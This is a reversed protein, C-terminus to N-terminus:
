LYQLVLLGTENPRIRGGQIATGEIEFLDLPLDRMLPWVVGSVKAWGEADKPSRNYLRVLDLQTPTLKM